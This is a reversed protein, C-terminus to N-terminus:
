EGQVRKDSRVHRVVHGRRQSSFGDVRGRCLGGSAGDGQFYTGQQITQQAYLAHLLSAIAHELSITLQGVDGGGSM